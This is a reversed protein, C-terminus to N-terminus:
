EIYKRVKWNDVRVIVCEDREIWLRERAISKPNSEVKSIDLLANIINAMEMLGEKQFNFHEKLLINVESSTENQVREINSILVAM